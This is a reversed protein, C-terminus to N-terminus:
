ALRTSEPPPTSSIYDGRLANLSYISGSRNIAQRACSINIWDLRADRVVGGLGSRHADVVKWRGPNKNDAVIITTDIIHAKFLLFTIPKSVHVTCYLM